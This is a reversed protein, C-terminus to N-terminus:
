VAKVGRSAKWLTHERSIAEEADAVFSAWDEESAQQAIRSRVSALELTTVGYATALTRHQKAQLWATMAAVLASGLSLLDGELSGVAKLISAFVGAAEVFLLSVTWRDALKRNRTAEGEYWTQQNMIRDKEYISKRDALGYERVTRMAPTIQQQGAGDVALDLDRLVNLVDDLRSLFLEEANSDSESFPAARMMYRWSLTKVSEAAARAEYWTREPKQTLVYVEALIALVFSTAALVGAWDTPSHETKWVFLGFCAAALLSALRVKTALLFAHQARSSSRDAAVYLAPLDQSSIPM